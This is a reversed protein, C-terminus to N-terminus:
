IRIIIVEETIENRVKCFIPAWLLTTWQACVHVSLKPSFWSCQACSCEVASGLMPLFQLRWRLVAILFIIQNEAIELSEKRIGKIELPKVITESSKHPTGDDGTKKSEVSNGLIEHSKRYNTQIEVSKRQNGTIQCGAAAVSRMIESLYRLVCCMPWVESPM